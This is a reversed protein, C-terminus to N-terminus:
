HGLSNKLIHMPRYSRNRDVIGIGAIGLCRGSEGRASSRAKGPNPNNKRKHNTPSKRPKGKERRKKDQTNDLTTPTPAQLARVPSQGTAGGRPRSEPQSHSHHTPPSTQEPQPEPDPEPEPEPVLEVRPDPRRRMLSQVCLHRDAHQGETPKWSELIKASFGEEDSSCHLSPDRYSKLRGVSRLGPDAV